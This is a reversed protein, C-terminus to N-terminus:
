NYPYKSGHCSNLTTLYINQMYVEDFIRNYIVTYIIYAM